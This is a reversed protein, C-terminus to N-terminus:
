ANTLLFGSAGVGPSMAFPKVRGFRLCAISVLTAKKEFKMAQIVHVLTSRAMEKNRQRNTRQKETEMRKKREKCLAFKRSM